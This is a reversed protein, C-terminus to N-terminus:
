LRFRCYFINYFINGQQSCQFMAFDDVLSQLLPDHTEFIWPQSKDIDLSLLLSRETLKKSACAQNPLPKGM